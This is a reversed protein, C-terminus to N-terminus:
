PEPIPIAKPPSTLIELERRVTAFWEPSGDIENHRYPLVDPPQVYTAAGPAPILTHGNPRNIEQRCYVVRAINPPVIIKGKRLLARFSLPQLVNSRPIWTARFVPDCALWLLVPMELKAAERAAAQAAAQGHSYSILSLHTYGNRHLQRVIAPMDATWPEPPRTHVHPGSFNKTIEFYMREGDSRILGRQRFGLTTLIALQM